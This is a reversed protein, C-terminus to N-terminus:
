GERGRGARDDTAPVTRGSRLVDFDQRAVLEDITYAQGCEPCRAERLGVMRYGCGPCRLDLRGEDGFMARGGSYRHYLYTWMVLSVAGALFWVAAILVDEDGNFIEDVLVSLCVAIVFVGATLACGLWVPRKRRHPSWIAFLVGMYAIAALALALLMAEESIRLYNPRPRGGAVVGLASALALALGILFLGSAFSLAVRMGAGASGDRVQSWLSRMGRQGAVDKEIM